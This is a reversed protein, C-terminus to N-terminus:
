CHAVTGPSQILPGGLRLLGHHSSPIDAETALPMYPISTNPSIPGSCAAKPILRLWFCSVKILLLATLNRLLEAVM